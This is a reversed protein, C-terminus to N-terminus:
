PQGPKATPESEPKGALGRLLEWHTRWRVVGIGRALLRHDPVIPNLLVPYPPEGRYPLGVEITIWGNLITQESWRGPPTPGPALRPGATPVSKCGSTAFLVVSITALVVPLRRKRHLMLAPM